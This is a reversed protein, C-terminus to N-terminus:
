RGEKMAADHAARRIAMYEDANLSPVYKRASMFDCDLIYQYRKADKRLKEVEAKLAFNKSKLKENENFYDMNQDQLATVSYKLADIEPQRTSYGVWAAEIEIILELGLSRRWAQFKEDGRWEENKTMTM